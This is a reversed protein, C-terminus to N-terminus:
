PTEQREADDIAVLFERLAIDENAATHEHACAVVCCPDDCPPDLADEILRRLTNAQVRDIAVNM